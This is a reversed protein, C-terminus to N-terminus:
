YALVPGSKTQSMVGVVLTWPVDSTASSQKLVTMWWAVTTTTTATTTAQHHRGPGLRRQHPPRDQDLWRLPRRRYRAWRAWNQCRTRQRRSRVPRKRTPATTLTSRTMTPKYRPRTPTTMPLPQHILHHRHISSRSRHYLGSQKIEVEVESSASSSHHRRGNLMSAMSTRFHLCTWYCVTPKISDLVADPFNTRAPNIKAFAFNPFASKVTKVVNVLFHLGVVSDVLKRRGSVYLSGYESTPTGVIIAAIEDFATLWLLVDGQRILVRLRYYVQSDSDPHLSCKTDVNRRCQVCGLFCVNDRWHVAEIRVPETSSFLGSFGCSVDDLSTYSKWCKTKVEDPEMSAGRKAM